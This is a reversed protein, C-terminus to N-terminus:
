VRMLRNPEGTFRDLSQASGTRRSGLGIKKRRRIQRHQNCGRLAQQVGQKKSFDKERINIKAVKM